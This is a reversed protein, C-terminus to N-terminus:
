SLNGIGIKSSRISFGIVLLSVQAQPRLGRASGREFYVKRSLTKILSLGKQRRGEAKQRCAANIGTANPSGFRRQAKVETKLTTNLCSKTYSPQFLQATM